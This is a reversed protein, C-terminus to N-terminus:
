VHVGGRAAADPRRGAEGAAGGATRACAEAAALPRPRNRAAQHPTTLPPPCPVTPAHPAPHPRPSCRSRWTRPRCSSSRECRAQGPPALRTLPFSPRLPSRRASPGTRTHTGRPKGRAWLDPPRAGPPTKGNEAEAEALRQLLPVLYALTKGSGTPSRVLADRGQLLLPITERQVQTLTSLGMKGLQQQLYRDLPLADFRDASFAANERSGDLAPTRPLAAARAPDEKRVAGSHTPEQHAAKQEQRRKPPRAERNPPAVAAQGSEAPPETRIGNVGTPPAEASASSPKPAREPNPNADPAAASWRPQGGKPLQRRGRHRPM